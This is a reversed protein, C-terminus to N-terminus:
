GPYKKELYDCVEDEFKNGMEFLVSCKSQETNLDSKRASSMKNQIFPPLSSANRDNDNYGLNVYYSKLWDLLPDKMLYNKISSPSVWEKNNDIINNTIQYNNFDDWSVSPQDGKQPTITSPQEVDEM